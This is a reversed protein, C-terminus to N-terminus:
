SSPVFCISSLSAATTAPSVCAFYSASAKIITMRSCSLMSCLCAIESVGALPPPPKTSVQKEDSPRFTAKGPLRGQSATAKLAYCEDLAIQLTIRRILVSLRAQTQRHLLERITPLEEVIQYPFLLRGRPLAISRAARPPM